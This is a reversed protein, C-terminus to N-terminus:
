LHKNIFSELEKFQMNVIYTEGGSNIESLAENEEETGSHLQSIHNFNYFIVPYIKCDFLSYDLGLNSLDKTDEDHHLIPLTVPKM